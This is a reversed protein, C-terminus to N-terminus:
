SLSVASNKAALDLFPEWNGMVYMERFSERLKHSSCMWLWQSIRALLAETGKTCKIFLPFLVCYYLFIKEM